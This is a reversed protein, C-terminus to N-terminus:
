THYIRLISINTANYNNYFSANNKMVQVVSCNLKLGTLDYRRKWKQTELIQIGSLSNWVAFFNQKLPLHKAVQYMEYIVYTQITVVSSFSSKNVYFLDSDLPIYIRESLGNLKEIMPTMTGDLDFVVWLQDRPFMSSNTVKCVLYYKCM